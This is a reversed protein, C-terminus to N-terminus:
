YEVRKESKLYLFGCMVLTYYVPSLQSNFITATINMTFLTEATKLAALIIPVFEVLTNTSMNFSIPSATPNPRNISPKFSPPLDLLM